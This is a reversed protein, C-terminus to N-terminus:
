AKEKGEKSALARKGQKKLEEAKARFEQPVNIGRSDLWSIDEAELTESDEQRYDKRLPHGQFEDWLFLRRLDPHGDYRIDLTDYAEREQLEASRYVPVISPVHPHARDVRVRLVLPGMKKEMSYFHYVSELFSLYDVGTVCSLYDMRLDMNDRIFVAVHRLLAPNELLFSDRLVVLRAGPVANEIKSKIEEPKLMTQNM